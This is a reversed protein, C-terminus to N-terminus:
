KSGDIVVAAFLADLSGPREFQWITALATDVQRQNLKRLALEQFKMEVEADTMPDLHHGHPYNVSGSRQTGDRLTMDIRCRLKAPYDRDIEPDRVVAIRDALALLKPDTFREPAFVADSFAGEHLAAAVVFPMSHDATERNRPRWKEVGSGIERHAFEYTHITIAAIADVDIGRRLELAAAIPGQSHYETVYNKMDACLIAHVGGEHPFPALEVPGFLEGFGM